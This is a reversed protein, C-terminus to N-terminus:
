YFRGPRSWARLARSLAPGETTQDALDEATRTGDAMWAPAADIHVFLQSTYVKWRVLGEYAKATEEVTACFQSWRQYPALDFALCPRIIAQDAIRPVHPSVTAANPNTRRLHQQTLIHRASSTCRVAAGFRKRIEARFDLAIPHFLEPRAFDYLNLDLGETLTFHKFHNTSM